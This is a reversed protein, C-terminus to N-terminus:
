KSFHIPCQFSIEPVLYFVKYHNLCWYGLYAVKKSSNFLHMIEPCAENVVLAQSCM